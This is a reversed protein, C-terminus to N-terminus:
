GRSSQWPSKEEAKITRSHATIIPLISKLPSLNSVLRHTPEKPGSPGISEMGIGPNFGRGLPRVLKEGPQSAVGTFPLPESQSFGDGGWHRLGTAPFGSSRGEILSVGRSVLMFRAVASGEVATAARGKSLIVRHHPFTLAKGGKRWFSPSLIPCENEHLNIPTPLM